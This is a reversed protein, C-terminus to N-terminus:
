IKRFSKAIEFAGNSVGQSKTKVAAFDFPSARWRACSLGVMAARGKPTTACAPRDEPRIRPTQRTGTRKRRRAWAERPDSEQFPSLPGTPDTAGHAKLARAGDRVVSGRHWSESAGRQNILSHGVLPVSGPSFPRLRDRWLYLNSLETERTM